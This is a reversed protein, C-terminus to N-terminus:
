LLVHFDSYENLLPSSCGFFLFLSQFVHVFADLFTDSVLFPHFSLLYDLFIKYVEFAYLVDSSDFDEFFTSMVLILFSFHSIM